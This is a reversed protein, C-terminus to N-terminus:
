IDRLFSSIATFNLWTVGGEQSNQYFLFRFHDTIERFSSSEEDLFHRYAITKCINETTKAYIAKSYQCRYHYIGLSRKKKIYEIGNAYRSFDSTTFDVNSINFNILWKHLFYRVYKGLFKYIPRIKLHLTSNRWLFLLNNLLFIVKKSFIARILPTVHGFEVATYPWGKWVETLLQVNPLYNSGYM